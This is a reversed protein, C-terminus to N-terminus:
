PEDDDLFYGFSANLTATLRPWAERRPWEGDLATSLHPLCTGGHDNDTLADAVRQALEELRDDGVAHDDARGDISIEVEFTVVRIRCTPDVADHVKWRRPKIWAQPLDGGGTSGDVEPSRGRRITAFVGLGKLTSEISRFALSDRM